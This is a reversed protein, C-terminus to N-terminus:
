EQLPHWKRLHSHLTDKRSSRYHCHPCPFPKEGTHTLIHNELHQRRNKGTFARRCLPCVVSSVKHVGDGGLTTAARTGEERQQRVAVEHLLTGRDFLVLDRIARPSNNRMRAQAERLSTDRSSTSGPVLDKHMRAVHIKLTDQRSSRFPCHPCPYPKHGTHTAIHRELIQRRNRGGFAKGCVPCVLSAVDGLRVALGLMLKLPM